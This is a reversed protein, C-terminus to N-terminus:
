NRFGPTNEGFRPAIFLRECNKPKIYDPIIINLKKSNLRESCDKFKCDLCTFCNINNINAFKANQFSDLPKLIQCIKCVLENVGKM